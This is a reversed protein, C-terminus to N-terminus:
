PGKVKCLIQYNLNELKPIRRRLDLGSVATYFLEFFPVNCLYKTTHLLVLKNQPQSLLSASGTSFHM